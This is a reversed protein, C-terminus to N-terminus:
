PEQSEGGCGDLVTASVRLDNDVRRPPFEGAKSVYVINGDLRVDDPILDATLEWNVKTDLACGDSKPESIGSGCLDQFQTALASASDTDWLQGQLIVNYGSSLLAQVDTLKSAASTTVKGISSTGSPGPVGESSISSQDAFSVKLTEPDIIHEEEEGIIVSGSWKHVFTYVDEEEQALGRWDQYLVVSHPPRRIHVGLPEVSEDRSVLTQEDASRWPQNTLLMIVLALIGPLIPLVRNLPSRPFARRGGNLPTSESPAM